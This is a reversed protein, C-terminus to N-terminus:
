FDKYLSSRKSPARMKLVDTFTNEKKRSCSTLICALLECAYDPDSPISQSAKTQVTSLLFSKYGLLQDLEEYGKLTDKIM